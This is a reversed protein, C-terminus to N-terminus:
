HEIKILDLFQEKFFIVFEASSLRNYQKMLRVNLDGFRAESIGSTIADNPTDTRKSREQSIFQQVHFKSRIHDLKAPDFYLNKKRPGKGPPNDTRSIVEGTDSRFSQSLMTKPVSSFSAHGTEEGKEVAKESRSLLNEDEDMGRHQLLSFISSDAGLDFVSNMDACHLIERVFEDGHWSSLSTPFQYSEPLWTEKTVPLIALATYLESYFHDTRRSVSRAFLWLEGMLGLFMSYLNFLFKNAVQKLHYRAAQKCLCVIRLLLKSLTQMRLLVYELNSRVPLNVEKEIYSSEPLFSHFDMLARVLDLNKVRVLTQNIRRMIQFGHMNRLRNKWRNCFRTLFAASKEFTSLASYYNLMNCCTTTLAMIQQKIHKSKCPANLVVPPIIDRQNWLAM